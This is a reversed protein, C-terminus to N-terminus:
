PHSQRLARTARLPLLSGASPSVDGWPRSAPFRASRPQRYRGGPNAQHRRDDPRRQRGRRRPRAQRVPSQRSTVAMNVERGINGRAKELTEHDKSHTGHQGERGSAGLVRIEPRLNALADMKTQEPPQGLKGLRRRRAPSEAKGSKSPPSGRTRRAPMCIRASLSPPELFTTRWKAFLAKHDQPRNEPM